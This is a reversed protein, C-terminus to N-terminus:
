NDSPRALWALREDIDDWEIVLGKDKPADGNSEPRTANDVPGTAVVSRQAAQPMADVAKAGTQCLTPNQAVIVPADVANARVERLRRQLYTGTPWSWTHPPLEDDRYDAGNVKSNNFMNLWLSQMKENRNRKSM